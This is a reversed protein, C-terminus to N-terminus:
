DENSIGHQQRTPTIVDFEAGLNGKTEITAVGLDVLDDDHQEIQHNM